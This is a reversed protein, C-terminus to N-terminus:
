QYVATGSLQYVQSTFSGTAATLPAFKVSLVNQTQLDVPVSGEWWYVVLGAYYSLGTSSANFAFADGINTDVTADLSNGIEPATQWTATAGNITGTTGNVTLPVACTFRARIWTGNAPKTLSLTPPTGPSGGAGTTNGYVRVEKKFLTSAPSIMQLYTGDFMLSVAQGNLIDGSELNSTGNKKISVAANADIAATCAGSTTQNSIFQFVKGTQLVGVTPSFTLTFANAAGAVSTCYLPCTFWRAWRGASTVWLLAEIPYGNSDTRLWAKDQDGAGPVAQQIIWQAYGSPLTVVTNDIIAEALTEPTGWCGDPYFPPPLGNFTITANVSM